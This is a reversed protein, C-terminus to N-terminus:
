KPNTKIEYINGIVLDNSRESLPEIDIREPESNYVEQGGEGTHYTWGFVWVEWRLNIDSWVVERSTEEDEPDVNFLDGSYINRGESDECDCFLMTTLEKVGGFIADRIDCTQMVGNEGMYLDSFYGMSSQYHMEKTESNWVRIKITEM